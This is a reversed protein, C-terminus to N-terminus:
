DHEINNGIESESVSWNIQIVQILNKKAKLKQAPNKILRVIPVNNVDSVIALFYHDGKDRATRWEKDTLLIAGSAESLGKVEVFREGWDTVISFDYGQGHERMDNLKGSVPLGRLRFFEIFHEEAKRGTPARPVFVPKRNEEIVTAISLLTEMEVDSANGLLIDTVLERIQIESLEQLAMVVKARSPSLPTQYWGVRHNHLPDFQDRMHKITHPNTKLIEGIKHHAEKMTQFGLNKYAEENFRSLYYAVYLALKHYNDM